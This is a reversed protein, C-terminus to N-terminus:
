IMSTIKSLGRLTTEESDDIFVARNTEQGLRRSLMEFKQGVGGAFLLDETKSMSEIAIKYSNLIAAFFSGAIGPLDAASESTQIRFLAAEFDSLDIEGISANKDILDFFKRYSISDTNGFCYKVFSKLARGAPLHTITEILRNDFYPRVGIKEYVLEDQKLKAVQGGTGINVVMKDDRIGAGLLSTQQDGFGCYVELDFEESFGIKKIDQTVSPFFFSEKVQNIFEPIWQKSYVDYFGSAAADTVHMTPKPNQTLFSVAFSILSMYCTPDKYKSTQNQSLASIILPLGPYIQAGTQRFSLGGKLDNTFNNFKEQMSESLVRRDQWTVLNGIGQRFGGMQGSVLIRKSNRYYAKQRKISVSIVEILERESIERSFGTESCFRPTDIKEFNRLEESGSEVTCTKVYSGGIDLLIFGVAAM